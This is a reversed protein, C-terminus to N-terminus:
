IKGLLDVKVTKQGEKAVEIGQFKAYNVKVGDDLDLTRSQTSGHVFHALAQDYIRTEALQKNLKEKQKTATAKDRASTSEQLHFIENLLNYCKKNLTIVLAM